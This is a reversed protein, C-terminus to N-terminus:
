YVYGMILGGHAPITRRDVVGWDVYNMESITIRGGSVSEVFAVHGMWSENLVVIAGAAPEGGTGYGARRASSLWSRANGWGGPVYRKTAVYYTCWGYPYANHSSGPAARVASAGAVKKKQLNALQTASLDQPPIKIKQGPRVLDSSLNNTAKITAIKLGFKWGISSLTDGSAVTYTITATRKEDKQPEQTIQTESLVPKDLYSPNELALAVTVPDPNINPTYPGVVSIVQAVDAPSLDMMEASYQYDASTEAAKAVNAILTFAFILLIALYPVIKRQTFDVLREPLRNRLRKSLIELKHTINLFKDKLISM